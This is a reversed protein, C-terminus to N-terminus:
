KEGGQPREHNTGQKQARLVFTSISLYKIHMYTLSCHSTINQQVDHAITNIKYSIITCIHYSYHIAIFTKHTSTLNLM